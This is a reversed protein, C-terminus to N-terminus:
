EATEPPPPAKEPPVEPASGVLAAEESNTKKKRPRKPPEKKEAPFELKVVRAKDIKRADAELITFEAQNDSLIRGKRPVNGALEVLYGGLSAVEGKPELKIGLAQNVEDLPTSAEVNFSGDENRVITKEEELPEHEDRIDGIIEEILDELTVLGATGGYEDVVIAIHMKGRQFQEMLRDVKMSEPIFYPQRLIDHLVILDRHKWVSLLDRTHIIGVINDRNAKYVPLRSYGTQVALDVISEIPTQLDVAVMDTRPIMVDRVRKDSFKFISRIMQDEEEEITGQKVGMEIWLKIDEETVQSVAADQKPVFRRVLANLIWTFPSILRDFLYVPLILSLATQHPFTRATVKPIVEGFVVIILTVGLSMLLGAMAPSYDFNRALRDALHAALFSAMINVTNNGVLITTLIRNPHALWAQFAPAVLSHGEALRRAEVRNLSLLATEAAAFAVSGLLLVGMLALNLFVASDM